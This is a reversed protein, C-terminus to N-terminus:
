ELLIEDNVEEGSDIGAFHEKVEIIALLKKQEDLEQMLFCYTEPLYNDLSELQDRLFDIKNIVKSKDTADHTINM